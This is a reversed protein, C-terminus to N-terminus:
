WNYGKPCAPVNQTKGKIPEPMTNEGEKFFYRQAKLMLKEDVTTGEPICESKKDSWDFGRPCGHSGKSYM